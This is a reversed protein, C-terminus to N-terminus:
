QLGAQTNTEHDYKELRDALADLEVRIQGSPGCRFRVSRAVLRRLFQYLTSTLEKVVDRIQPCVEILRPIEEDLRRWAVNLKELTATTTRETRATQLDRFAAFVTDIDDHVVIFAVAVRGLGRYAEDLGTEAPMLAADQLEFVRTMAGSDAADCSEVPWPPITDESRRAM